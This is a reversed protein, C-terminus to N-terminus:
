VKIYIDKRYMWLCVLWWVALWIVVWSWAGVSPSGTWHTVWAILGGALSDTRGESDPHPVLWKSAIVKFFFESGVYLTIANMGYVRLPWATTWRAVDIVAFLIALLLTGTGAALLCYAPSFFWKSFPVTSNGFLGGGAPEYGWQLLYALATLGLGFALLRLIRRAPSAQSTLIQTALGGIVAIAACPLFQQSMGLWGVFWRLPGPDHHELCVVRKVADFHAWTGPGLPSGELVRVPVLGQVQDWPILTMLAWKALLVGIVFALPVWRPLLFVILSVFYAVAILQLINWRLLDTWVLPTRAADSAVTLLVGLLYLVVARRFGMRLTILWARDRGRGSRISLPLACGMIFLFWPFVLDTLTAGQAPDNWEIHFFQPHFVERNWTMNVFLMAAIDFGRFADLCLLRQGKKQPQLSVEKPSSADDQGTM